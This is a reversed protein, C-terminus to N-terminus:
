NNSFSIAYQLEEPHTCNENDEDSVDFSKNQEQIIERLVDDTDTQEQDQEREYPRLVYVVGYEAAQKRKEEEGFSEFYKEVEDWIQQIVKDVEARLEALKDTAYRTSKQYIKQRHYAELFQEYRVKVLAASPNTIANGGAKQLREQEGKIIREGWYILDKDSVLNPIKTDNEKLGFFKRTSPPLENRLIAFNMVQLFHSIYLRAKKTLVALEKSKASQVAIAQKQQHYMQEFYPMVRKLETLTSQSYALRAPELKEAMEYAKKMARLRASDTNPLRRYPM